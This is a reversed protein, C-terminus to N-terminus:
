SVIVYVWEAAYTAKIKITLSEGVKVLPGPVPRDLEVFLSHGSVSSIKSRTDCHQVNPESAMQIKFMVSEIDEPIRDIKIMFAGSSDVTAHGSQNPTPLPETDNENPTAFCSVRWDNPNSPTWMYIDYIVDIPGDSATLASGDPKTVEFRGTYSIGPRVFKENSEHAKLSYPYRFFRANTSTFYNRGTNQEIFEIKFTLRCERVNENVEFLLENLGNAVFKGDFESDAGRYEVAWVLRERTSEINDYEWNCYGTSDLTVMAMGHADKGHSFAAKVQAEYSQESEDYVFYGLEGNVKMEVEVEPLVYYQVDFNKQADPISEDQSEVEILWAGLETFTSM